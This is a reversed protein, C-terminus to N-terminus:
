KASYQSWTLWLMSYIMNTLPRKSKLHILCIWFCLFVLTELCRDRYPTYLATEFHSLFLEGFLRSYRFEAFGYLIFSIIVMALVWFKLMWAWSQSNKEVRHFERKLTAFNARSNIANIWVLKNPVSNGYFSGVSNWLGCCHNGTIGSRLIKLRM